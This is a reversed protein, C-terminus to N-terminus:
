LIHENIEAILEDIYKDFTSSNRIRALSRCENLLFETEELTRTPNTQWHKVLLHLEHEVNVWARNYSEIRWNLSNILKMKQEGYKKAEEHREKWIKEWYENYAKILDPKIVLGDKGTGIPSLKHIIIFNRLEQVKMSSPTRYTDM